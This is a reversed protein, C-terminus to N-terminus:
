SRGRRADINRMLSIVACLCFAACFCGRIIVQVVAVLLRTTEIGMRRIAHFLERYYLDVDSLEVMPLIMGGAHEEPTPDEAIVYEDGDSDESGRSGSDEDGDGEPRLRKLNFLQLRHLDGEAMEDEWYDDVNDSEERQPQEANDALDPADDHAGEADPMEIDNDDGMDPFEYSAQEHEVADDDNSNVEMHRELIAAVEPDEDM